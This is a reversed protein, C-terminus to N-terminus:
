KAKRCNRQIFINGCCYEAPLFSYLFNDDGWETGRAQAWIFFYTALLKKVPKVCRPLLFAGCRLPSAINWKIDWELRGGASTAEQQRQCEHHFNLHRKFIIHIVHDCQRSTEVIQSRFLAIVSEMESIGFHLNFVFFWFFFYFDDILNFVCLSSRDCNVDDGPENSIFLFIDDSGWRNIARSYVRCGNWKLRNRLWRVNETDRFIIWSYVFTIITFKFIFDDTNIFLFVNFSKLFVIFCFLKSAIFHFDKNLLLSTIFREYM